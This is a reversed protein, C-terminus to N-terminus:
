ISVIKLATAWIFNEMVRMKQTQSFNSKCIEIKESIQLSEAARCCVPVRTFNNLETKIMWVLTVASTFHTSRIFTWTCCLGPRCFPNSANESSLGPTGELPWVCFCCGLPRYIKRQIGHYGLVQSKVLGSYSHETHYCTKHLLARTDGQFIRLYGM